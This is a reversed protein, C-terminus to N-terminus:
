TSALNPLQSKSGRLEVKLESYIEVLRQIWKEQTFEETVREQFRRGLAQLQAQGEKSLLRQIRRASVAAPEEPLVQIGFTEDPILETVGGVPTCMVPTGAWGAEILNIPLGEAKSFSLLLDLGALEDGVAKRYGM